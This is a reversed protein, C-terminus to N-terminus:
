ETKDALKKGRGARRNQCRCRAGAVRWPSSHPRSVRPLGHTTRHSLCPRACVQMSAPQSAPQYAPLCASREGRGGPVFKGCIDTQRASCSSQSSSCSPSQRPPAKNRSPLRPCLVRICISVHILFDHPSKKQHRAPPFSLPALRLPSSQPVAFKWAHMGHMRAMRPPVCSM